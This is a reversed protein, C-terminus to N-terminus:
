ADLDLVISLLACKLQRLRLVDFVHESAEVHGISCWDRRGHVLERAFLVTGLSFSLNFGHAVDWEHTGDSRKHIEGDGGTRVDGEGDSTECLEVAVRSHLVPCGDLM